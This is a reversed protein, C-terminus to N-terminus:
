NREHPEKATARNLEAILLDALEVARTAIRKDGISLLGAAGVIAMGAFWERKSLGDNVLENPFADHDPDTRRTSM